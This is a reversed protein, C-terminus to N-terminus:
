RRVGGGGSRSGGGTSYSRSGSSVSRSVTSRNTSGANFSRQVTGTGTSRYLNSGSTNYISVSRNASGNGSRSVSFNGSNARVTFPNRFESASEQRRYISSVGGTQRSVYREGMGSSGVTRFTRAPASGRSATVTGTSSTRATTLTANRGRVVSVAPASAVRTVGNNRRVATGTATTRGGTLGTGTRIGTDRRGFYVPKHHHAPIGWYGYWPDPWGGWWLGYGAPGYWGWSNWAFSWTWGWSPYWPDYIGPFWPSYWNYWDAWSSYRGWPGFVDWYKWDWYSCYPNNYGSLDYYSNIYNINLSSTGDMIGSAALIITDKFGSAEERTRAILAELDKSDAEAAEKTQRSERYYIGDNFTSYAYYSSTGCSYLLTASCVSLLILSKKM